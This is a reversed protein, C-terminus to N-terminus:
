KGSFGQLFADVEVPKDVKPATATAGADTKTIKYQSAKDNLGKLIDEGNTIKFDNDFSPKLSSNVYSMLVDDVSFENSKLFEKIADNEKSTKIKAENDEKYKKLLPEIIENYEERNTLDPAKGDNQSKYQSMWTAIRDNQDNYFLCDLRVKFVPYATTIGDVTLKRTM